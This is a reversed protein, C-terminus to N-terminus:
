AALNIEVIAMASSISALLDKLLNQVEEGAELSRTAAIM